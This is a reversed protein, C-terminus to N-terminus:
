LDFLAEVLDLDSAADTRLAVSREILSGEGCYGREILFPGPQRPDEEVGGSSPESALSIPKITNECCCLERIIGPMAVPVSKGTSQDHVTDIEACTAFEEAM